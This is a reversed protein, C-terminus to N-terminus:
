HNRKLARLETIVRDGYRTLTWYTRTDKLSRSKESKVILGLARFQLRITQFDDPYLELDRLSDEQFGQLAVAAAIEKRRLVALNSQITSIMEPEGSEDLMLPGIANFIENWSALVSVHVWSRGTKHAVLIKLRIRFEDEGQALDSSGQPPETAIRTLEGTLEDVRKRLRLIEEVAREDPIKDARVWGVAPRTKILQVMSRSVMSGLEAPSGWFKCLKKQVLARFEGLKDRLAASPESHKAPLSGPDSHLFAIIPKRSELAYRYEMETYSYGEPGISGYRGGIIVLYYDCDNIVRKILSWQDEDAAPFLEMGAPICDLELLAQMVERREEVLDLFTSSVFVQYRKEIVADGQLLSCSEHHL